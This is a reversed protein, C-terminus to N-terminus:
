EGFWELLHAPELRLAFPDIRRVTAAVDDAGALELTGGMFDVFPSAHRQAVFSLCLEGDLRLTAVPEEAPDDAGVLRLRVECWARVYVGEPAFRAQMGGTRWAEDVRGEAAAIAGEDGFALRAPELRAELVGEFLRVLREETLELDPWRVPEFGRAERAGLAAYAEIDEREGM